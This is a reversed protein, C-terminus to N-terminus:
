GDGEEKRLPLGLISFTKSIRYSTMNKMQNEFDQYFKVVLRMFEEDNGAVTRCTVRFSEFEYRLQHNAYSGKIEEFSMTPVDPDNTLLQAVLFDWYNEKRLGVCIYRIRHQFLIQLFKLDPVLTLVMFKKVMFKNKWEVQLLHRWFDFATQVPFQEDYLNFTKLYLSFVAAIAIYLYISIAVFHVSVFIDNFKVVYNNVKSHAEFLFNGFSNVADSNSQLTLNACATLNLTKTKNEFEDSSEVLEGKSDLIASTIIVVVVSVLIPVIQLIGMWFWFRKIEVFHTFRIMHATFVSIWRDILNSFLTPAGLPPNELTMRLPLCSELLIWNSIFLTVIFVVALIRNIALFFSICYFRHVSLLFQCMFAIEIQTDDLFIEVM